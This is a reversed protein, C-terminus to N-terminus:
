QKLKITSGKSNLPPSITTMGPWYGWKHAKLTNAFTTLKPINAQYAQELWKDLVETAQEKDIQTRIERLSEKLYYAKTLPENM